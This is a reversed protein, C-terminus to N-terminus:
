LSICIIGSDFHFHLCSLPPSINDTLFPLAAGEMVTVPFHRSWRVRPARGWPESGWCWPQRQWWSGQSTGHAERWGGLTEVGEGRPMKRVTGDTGWPLGRDKVLMHTLPGCKLPSNPGAGRGEAMGLLGNYILFVMETRGPVLDQRLAEGEM